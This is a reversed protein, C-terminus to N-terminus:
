GTHSHTCHTLPADSGLPLASGSTEPGRDAIFGAAGGSSREATERVVPSATPYVKVSETLIVFSNYVSACVEVCLHLLKEVFWGDAKKSATHPLIEWYQKRGCECIEKSMELHVFAEVGAQWM